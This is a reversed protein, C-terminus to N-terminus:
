IHTGAVASLDKDAEQHGYDFNNKKYRLWFM